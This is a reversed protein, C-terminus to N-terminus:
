KFQLIKKKLFHSKRQSEKFHQKIRFNELPEAKDEM